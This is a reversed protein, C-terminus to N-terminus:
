KEKNVKYIIYYIIATISILKVWKKENDSLIIQM